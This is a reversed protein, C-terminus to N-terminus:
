QFNGFIHSDNPASGWKINSMDLTYELSYETQEFEDVSIADIASLYNPNPHLKTLNIQQLLEAAITNTVMKITQKSKM